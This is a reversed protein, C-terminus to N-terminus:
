ICDAKHEFRSGRSVEASLVKKIWVVGEEDVGKRVSRSAEPTPALDPPVFVGVCVFWAWLWVLVVGVLKSRM